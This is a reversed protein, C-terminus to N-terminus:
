RTNPTALTWFRPEVGLEQALEEWGISQAHQEEGDVTVQLRGKTWRWRGTFYEDSPAIVTLTKDHFLFRYGAYREGMWSLVVPEGGAILKDTLQWAPYRHGTSILPLPYGIPYYLKGIGPIESISWEQGSKDTKRTIKGFSAIDGDYDIKWIQTHEDWGESFVYGNGLSSLLVNGEQSRMWTEIEERTTTPKGGSAFLGTRGPGTHQSGPFNRIVATPDQGRLEDLKGSTQKENVELGTARVVTPCADALFRPWSKQVWGTRSVKWERKHPDKNSALYEQRLTGTDADYFVLSRGTKELHRIVHAAGTSGTEFSLTGGELSYGAIRRREVRAFCELRSGDESFTVGQTVNPVRPHEFVFVKGFMLRKFFAANHSSHSRFVKWHLRDSVEPLVPKPGQQGQAGCSVLLVALVAALVSKLRMGYGKMTGNLMLRWRIRFPEDFQSCAM